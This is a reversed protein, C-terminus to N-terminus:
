TYREKFYSRLDYIGISALIIILPEIPMRFRTAGYAFTIHFVTFCLIIIPFLLLRSKNDFLSKFFGYVFFPLLVGYSFASIIKDRLSTHPFIKWYWIFKDYMLWVFKKPNQLIFTLAKVYLVKQREIENPYEKIIRALEVRYKNRVEERYVGSGDSFKNNSFYFTVGGETTLPVFANLQIFNRVIWPMSLSFTVIMTYFFIQLNKKVQRRSLVLFLVYAPILLIAVPRTYLALFFISGSICCQIGVKRNDASIFFWISSLFLTVFLTETLIEGTYYIFVPYIISISAAIHAITFNANKSAIVFILLPLFAAIIAQVILVAIHKYGFIGYISALLSPYVPGRRMDYDATFFPPGQQLQVALQDYSVGDGVPEPNGM